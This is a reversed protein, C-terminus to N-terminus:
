YEISYMRDLDKKTHKMGAKEYVRCVRPNGKDTLVFSESFGNERAWDVAYQVFRSGIGRDQFLPIIDVSYIFFQPMQGDMRTLSYGYILGIIKKDLKAVLAINQNESLFLQIRDPNFSMFGKIIEEIQSIDEKQLLEFTIDMQVKGMRLNTQRMYTM